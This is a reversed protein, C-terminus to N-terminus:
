SGVACLAVGPLEYVGDAGFPVFAERLRTRLVEREDEPLGRVVMGFPGAVDIVWQEYDELARFDFRLRVEDICVSGFGAGDLLARTREESAMSFVGPAWPEPPPMHGCEALIMGGISAWPNRQIAIRVRM